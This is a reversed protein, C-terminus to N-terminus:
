KGELQDQMKFPNPPIIGSGLSSTNSESVAEPYIIIDGTKLGQVIEVKKGDSIGTKIIVKEGITGPKAGQLYVFNENGNQQLAVLPLLIANQKEEIVIIVTANMGAFVTPNNTFDLTAAYSTAGNVNKGLPSVKVIKAELPKDPMADLLVNAKQGQQIFPRDIEDIAATIKLGNTKINAITTDSGMVMGDQIALNEIVGDVPVTLMPCSIYGLIRAYDSAKQQRSLYVANYKSSSPERKLTFLKDNASVTENVKIHIQKVTGGAAQIFLPKNVELTGEGMRQDSILISVREGITGLSDNMLVTCITKDDSISSIMGDVKKGSSLQVKVESSVTLNQGQVDFEVKMKKDTSLIALARKDAIINTVNSGVGAFVQKVRGDSPTRIEKPAKQGDMGSLQTDLQKIESDLRSATQELTEMDLSAIPQGTKLADGNEVLVKDVKIGGISSLLTLAAQAEVTGSASVTKSITGTEATVTKYQRASTTKGEGQMLMMPVVLLLILVAGIAVFWIWRKKKKPIGNM